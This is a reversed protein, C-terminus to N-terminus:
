SLGLVEKMSYLGHPKDHVWEAAKVAGSAFTSRSNAKHTIEIQEGDMFFYATHEGITNGGRITSFGITHVDRVEDVGHRTYVACDHLDRGLANAIVEGMKLATGSPADVKYKHHAEIIEIDSDEGIARATQALLELTLNVGISMNPAFVIPIYQTANTIIRLEEDSFGTTGIVMAKQYRMCDQIYGLTAEPRTFDILVDFDSTLVDGKNITTSITVSHNSCEQAIMQGMKGSAGSIAIKTM